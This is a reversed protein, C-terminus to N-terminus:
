SYWIIDAQCMAPMGYTNASYICLQTNESFELNKLILICYSNIRLGTKCGPLSLEILSSSALSSTVQELGPTAAGRGGCGKRRGGWRSGPTM